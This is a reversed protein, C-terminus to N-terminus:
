VYAICISRWKEEVLGKNIDLFGILKPSDILSLYSFISASSWTKSFKTLRKSHKRLVENM